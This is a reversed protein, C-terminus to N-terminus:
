AHGQPDIIALFCEVSHYAYVGVGRRLYCHGDEDRAVEDTEIRRACSSKV